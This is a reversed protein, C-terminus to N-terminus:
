GRNCYTWTNKIFVEVYIYIWEQHCFLRRFTMCYWVMYWVLGYWEMDYVLFLIYQVYCFDFLAALICVINVVYVRTKSDGM